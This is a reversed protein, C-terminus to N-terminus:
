LKVTRVVRVSDSEQLRFTVVGAPYASTNISVQQEGMPLRRDFLREICAGQVDYAELIVRAARALSFNVTLRETFPSPYAALTLADADRGSVDSVSTNCERLIPLRHYGNHLLERVAAAPLGFWDELISGYVDRFDYQMAVGEQVDVDRAIEPSQGLTGARVCEGFLVLPAASGHDTGTADNSRIRRGFESYTMGIVREALGQKKLDELFVAIADSLTALLEAHNGEHTNGAEVQNAHTDFGGLNVIYAKTRLGGSIMQVVSRLQQALKNGSPYDAVTKGTLSKTQVARGYSNAQAITTRVFDLESGHENDPSSGGAGELLSTMSLPNSVTLTFSGLLGQCTESAVTGITVAVPDTDVANPYGEPFGPYITDFYRGMWGTRSVERSDSGTNWIDSSRFHSRNQDRYGVGQVISVKGEDWLGRVSTLSPHLATRDDLRLLRNKPLLINSRVAALNDFQDLPVVTNLGDNGGTLNILVLVRDSPDALLADFLKGTPFGFPLKTTALPLAAATTALFQRRNISM